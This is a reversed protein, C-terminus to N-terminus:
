YYSNRAATLLCISLAMRSAFANSTKM